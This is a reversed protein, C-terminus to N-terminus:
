SKPATVKGDAWSEMFSKLEEGELSEIAEITGEDVGADELWKVTANMDGRNAANLVKMSFHKPSPLEFEEEFVDTAFRVWEYRKESKRTFTKKKAKAM